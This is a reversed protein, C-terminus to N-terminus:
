HSQRLERYSYGERRRAAAEEAARWRRDIREGDTNSRRRGGRPGASGGSRDDNEDGDRGRRGGRRRDGPSPSSRLARSPSRATEAAGYAPGVVPTAAPSPPAVAVDASDAREEGSPGSRGASEDEEGGERASRGGMWKSATTTATPSKNGRYRLAIGTLAVVACATGVAAPAPPDINLPISALSLIPPTPVSATSPLPHSRPEIMEASTVPIVEFEPNSLWYDDAGPNNRARRQRQRLTMATKSSSVDNGGSGGGTSVGQRYRTGGGIYGAEAETVIARQRSEPSSGYELANVFDEGSSDVVVIDDGTIDNWDEIDWSGSGGRGGRRRRRRTTRGQDRHKEFEPTSMERTPVIFHPYLCFIKGLGGIIPLRYAVSYFHYM